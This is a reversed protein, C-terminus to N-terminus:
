HLTASSLLWCTYQSCPWWYRVASSRGDYLRGKVIMDIQVGICIGLGVGGMVRIMSDWLSRLENLLM